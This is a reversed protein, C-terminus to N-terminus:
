RIQQTNGLADWLEAEHAQLEALRATQHHAEADAEFVQLAEIEARISIRLDHGVSDTSREQVARM